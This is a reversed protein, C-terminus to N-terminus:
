GRRFWAGAASSYIFSCFGGAALTTPAGVVGGTVASSLTLATVGSRSCITIVQGDVLDTTSPLTITLSAAVTATDHILHNTATTLAVTGSAATSRTPTQILARKAIVDGSFLSPASGAGFFAYVTKGSTIGIDSRFGYNEAGATLTNEVHFGVQRDIVAGAAITGQSAYVHILDTMTVGTDVNPKTYIAFGTQTVGKKFTPRVNHGFAWGTTGGTNGILDGSIDSLTSINNLTKNDVRLFCTVARDVTIGEKNQYAMSGLHQNLPAQNSKTGFLKTAM